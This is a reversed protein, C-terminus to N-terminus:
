SDSRYTRGTLRHHSMVRECQSMVRQNNDCSTDCKNNCSCVLAVHSTPPVDSKPQSQVHSPCSENIKHRVDHRVQQQLQAGARCSEHPQPPVHSTPTSVHSASQINCSTDCKKNCSRVVVHSTHSYRSMVRQHQSM